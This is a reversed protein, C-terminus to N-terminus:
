AKASPSTGNEEVGAVSAPDVGSTANTAAVVAGPKVGGVGRM